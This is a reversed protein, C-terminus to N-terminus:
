KKAGLLKKIKKNRAQFLYLFCVVYIICILIVILTGVGHNTNIFSLFLGLPIGLFLGASFLSRTLNIYLENIDEKKSKKKIM